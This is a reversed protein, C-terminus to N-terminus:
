CRGVTPASDWTASSGTVTSSRRRLPGCATLSVRCTAACPTWSPLVDAPARLAFRDWGEAAIRPVTTPLGLAREAEIMASGFLTWRLGYPTLGVDDRWGWARASLAACADLLRLHQDLTLPEDGPPILGASLDRMLIAAGWGNRGLGGVAGVVGHDIVEPAVDMLGAAWVLLARPGLDGLCRITFDDDVHVYKLIHAEGDIVLREFPNGSKSDTTLFPERTTARGVLEDLSGAVPRPVLHATDQVGDAHWAPQRLRAILASPGRLYM